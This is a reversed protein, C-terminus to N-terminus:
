ALLKAAVQRLGDTIPHDPHSRCFLGGSGLQAMETSLPLMAAVPAQFLAQVQAGLAAVDMMPPIKNVILYLQPVELRRALEVAVATGQLDQVDPRVILLLVDSIAISLLTEENVGPHTDIFLFDLELASVLARLGDNLREVSYGERLVRAIEGSRLSSPVLFLRPAPAADDVEGLAARTVDLATEEISCRGWLYDNLCLRPAPDSGRFLLHIGPSQIDTDIVGVRNGAQAVLMALNATTNSKGTGGRFSHTSIIKSV